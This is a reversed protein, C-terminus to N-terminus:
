AITFLERKKEMVDGNEALIYLIARAGDESIGLEKSLDSVRYGRERLKKLISQAHRDFYTRLIIYFERNKSFSRTGLVQGHRISNELMVSVRSAEAETQLVLFGNKELSVINEDKPEKYSSVEKVFEKSEQKLQAAPKKRMLFNDYINKPISYLEKGSKGRFQSVARNAILSQLVRRESESLIKSVNEQTRNEYRITDIKKLVALEDASPQYQRPTPQFM